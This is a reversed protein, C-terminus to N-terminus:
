GGFVFMLRFSLLNNHMSRNIFNSNAYYGMPFISYAYRVNIELHKLPIYNAEAIVDFDNRKLCFTNLSGSDVPTNGGACIPTPIPDLGKVSLQEGVVRSYSFGVGVNFAKKDQYHVLLPIEAYQNRWTYWFQVPLNPTIPNKAGKESYLIETSIFFKKSVPIQGYFGFNLGVKHYGAYDDGDIQAANIGFIIGGRIHMSPVYSNDRTAQKAESPTQDQALVSQEFFFISFVSVFVPLLIKKM